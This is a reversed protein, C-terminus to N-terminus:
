VNIGTDYYMCGQLLRHGNLDVYTNIGDKISLWDRMGWSQETDDWLIDQFWLVMKARGNEVYMGFCIATRIKDDATAGMAIDNFHEHNYYIRYRVGGLNYDNVVGKITATIPHGSQHTPVYDTLDPIILGGAYAAEHRPVIVTEPFVAIGDPNGVPRWVRCRTIYGLGVVGNELFDEVSDYGWEAYTSINLVMWNSVGNASYKSALQANGQPIQIWSGDKKRVSISTNALLPKHLRISIRHQVEGVSGYQPCDGLLTSRRLDGEFYFPEVTVQHGVEIIDLPVAHATNKFYEVQGSGNVHGYGALDYWDKLRMNAPYEPSQGYPMVANTIGVAEVTALLEKQLDAGVDALIVGGDMYMGWSIEEFNWPADSFTTTVTCTHKEADYAMDRDALTAWPESDWAYNEKVAVHLRPNVASYVNYFTFTFQQTAKNFKIEEGSATDWHSASVFAWSHSPSFRLIQKGAHEPMKLSHGGLIFENVYRQSTLQDVIAHSEQFVTMKYTNGVTFGDRVNGHRPDIRVARGLSCYVRYYEGSDGQIIGYSDVVVFATLGFTVPVSEGEAYILRTCEGVGDLYYDILATPTVDVKHTCSWVGEKGTLKDSLAKGRFEHFMAQYNPLYNPVAAVEAKAAQKVANLDAVAIDHATDIASVSANGKTELRQYHWDGVDRVRTTKEDGLRAVRDFQTNGEAEIRSDQKNGESLIREVQADGGNNVQVRKAEADNLAQKSAVLATNSSELTETAVNVANTIDFQAQEIADLMEGANAVKSKETGEPYMVARDTREELQQVMMVIRDLARNLAGEPIIGNAPIQLLQTFDVKRIVTVRTGDEPKTVLAVKGGAENGAGTVTYDIGLMKPTIEYLVVLDDQDYFIFPVQIDGGSYIVTVANKNNELM